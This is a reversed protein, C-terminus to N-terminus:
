VPVFKFKKGSIELRGALVLEGKKYSDFDFVEKTKENYAYKVGKITLSKLAIKIKKKNLKSMTDKDESDISPQYSFADPNTSGFTFCKVQDKEGPVSHLACDFSAEKVADLLKESVNEKITSIEYLSEDSTVPRDTLKGKDKLRLEVSRDDSIQKDTFTMLYLFVDVTRLDEPLDQHSCIRRARGIVQQMRVPHWYPETIHVYRVNKLSIGEAGSATIMFIKIIEGLINNSNIEKLPESLSPPVMDWFGNFINRMIEKEESSETGTYLVFKPKEMDEEKIDLNWVQGTQKIKFQAFGNAELVLKLIGIGELTRFQSYILHLGIHDPDQLNELIHLFKPSYSSLATPSLYASKNSELEKLAEDIREQYSKTELQRESELADVEDREYKGDLDNIREQATKADIMDESTAENLIAAELNDDENPMPRKVDPRPFVYNCFARSFIRYTSVTDEYVGEVQKRKKRANRLELKREQVRAEEYVGFQFDSMPIQVVHFNSGKTYQPMLTEQASRFYSTLGLIRRKLLNMNKVENKDDIFYSKFGDLTDPLANYMNVSIGKPIIDIKNENLIDTTVKVFSEDTLNGNEDLYVGRYLKDNQKNVFGYPNRTVTLTTTSPTYEIYDMISEKDRNLYFIKKFYETNIKRRDAISLRFSWTKIKGRLMNFLIGLENPYNIIPTGTLFVVKANDASSIYEYLRMSLSEPKKLKNVIRSVFNHAEDIILVANDFPNKQYNNSLEKLHSARLGNYNIFRYKHRIMENIQNDIALKSAADLYGFNPEKKVNVLWAGGQKNIYDVSLSLIKSLINVVEMKGSTNVFEWFQNKKYISDGCKKLEEVYNMRLSAPTMVIIPKSTKIGEAIAISTCTKGSGLGHYLLLGRYPTYLNIYDRVIKQHAMLTFENSDGRECSAKGANEQIEKKYPEFINTIFNMFIQRNNMYYSSARVRFEESKEGLREGLMADGIRLEPVSGEYVMGIPKPTKRELIKEEVSQIGILKIKKERRGVIVMTLKPPLALSDVLERKERVPVKLPLDIAGVRDVKTKITKLFETRDVRGTKRMDKIKAKIEVPIKVMVKVKPAPANKVKLKQLLEASM